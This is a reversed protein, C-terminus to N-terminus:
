WFLSPRTQFISRGVNDEGDNIKSAATASAQASSHGQSGMKQLINQSLVEARHLVAGGLIIETKAQLLGEQAPKGGPILYLFGSM